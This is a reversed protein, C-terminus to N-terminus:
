ILGLSKSLAVISILIAIISIWLSVNKMRTDELIRKYDELGAVDPTGIEIILSALDNQSVKNDMRKPIHNINNPYNELWFKVVKLKIRNKM